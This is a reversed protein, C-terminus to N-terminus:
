RLKSDMWAFRQQYWDKLYAIEGAYTPARAALRGSSIDGFLLRDNKAAVGVESAEREVGHDAIDKLFGRKEAWRKKLADVFVPDKFLQVYWHTRTTSHHQSGHGRLWWGKPSAITTRTEVADPKAGASRDFDWIPGMVFKSSPSTYDPIYFFTSRYFDSDNEKTFEKAIYFDVASDIDLYKTWGEEPDDFDSGYLVKEFALIRSKMGAIKDDTIGEEYEKGQKREDPDKFAYPIQHDGFFGPVNEDDYHKDVEVVIGKHKDINIRNKDIKISESLQYSGKYEGNLFLEVFTGRPTWRLGDLGAGVNYAIQNRVLTRDQFNALLVWTKDEPLGFPRRAKKFKMKYPKKIKTATTNGRVAFEDVRFPKTIQGDTVMVANAEYPAKRVVPDKFDDTNVYLVKEGLKRPGRIFRTAPSTAGKTGGIIDGVLRYFRSGKITFPIKVRGHGDEKGEGLKKWKSGSLWQLEFVRGAKRYKSEGIAFGSKGSGRVVALHVEDEVTVVKVPATVHKELEGKAPAVVRYRMSPEDLSTTFTYDGDATTKAKAIKSWGEVFAELAVPRSGEADVSGTLTFKEGVFPATNSVTPADDGGGCGVLMFSAVAVVVTISVFRRIM